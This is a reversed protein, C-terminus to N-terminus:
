CAQVAAINFSVICPLLKIKVRLHPAESMVCRWRSVAACQRNSSCVPWFLISLSSRKTIKPDLSGISLVSPISLYPLRPQWNELLPICFIKYLKRPFKVIWIAMNFPSNCIKCMMRIVNIRLCIKVCGYSSQIFCYWLWSELTCSCNTKWRFWNFIWTQLVNKM